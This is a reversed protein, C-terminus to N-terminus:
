YEELLIVIDNKGEAKAKQYPTQGYIDKITLDAGMGVLIKVAEINNVCVADHLPTYGNSSRQANIDFGNSVLLLVVEMNDQIMAAHLATGGFSNREDLDLSKELCERLVEVKGKRAVTQISDESFLTISILVTVLLGIIGTGIFCKSLSTFSSM